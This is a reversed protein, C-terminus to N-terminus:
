RATIITFRGVRKRHDPTEIHYFYVGSAIRRGNRSRLNWTLEGGGTPDDNTLAQVLIGSLSYIRVIALAPLHVFKLVQTDPATEFGSFLYLPDPVTHVRALLSDTTASRNLQSGQFALEVRLGPVAPPRIAPAFAFDATAATGTITGSYFRANWVAGQVPLASLTMLFFHGNLYFIFGNGTAAYTPDATGAYSSASDRIAIAHLTATRQLVAPTQAGAGCLNAYVHVPEVCAIDSWTLLTNKTDGTLGETVGAFSEETLIGWSAGARTDFPVPVHHTVDIVSDVTGAAGWYVRFDAARTVTALAAEIIRGPTNPTSNYSQVHFIQVGAIAGATRGITPVRLTSACAGSSPRCNGGNPNPTNENASGAWWRPGNYASNSPLGNADGRGWTAVRFAGPTRLLAEGFLATNAGVGFRAAQASDVLTAGFRVLADQDRQVTTADMPLPVIFHVTMGTSRATLYYPTARLSGPLLDFDGMGTLVSDIMVTVSGTALLQPLFAGFSVAIGDTPPMPGSFIGTVPDITPLPAATDLVTGDAGLLQMSQVTGAIEQGSPARPTIVKTVRASELSSPGSRISNFDFATVAYYYRFSNRVTSDTYAYTVGGLVPGNAFAAAPFTDAIVTSVLGTSTLIRGGEPVQVIRFCCAFRTAWIPMSQKATTDPTPPFPAPCDTLVGLEPACQGGYSVAGLYDVFQTNDHDLQVLLTLARPDTGRYIRYGEVDFQRYNPDYLASSRDSALAYYPDGTQETASPQWVVTVAHDGPILFFDPTDPAAPMLFKADVIAQAVQTKFLLSRRAATVENAEIVGNANADSQTIWGAVREITQIRTTDLAISDGRQPFGPKLDGGIFPTVVDLPAALIFAVVITTAEGPDLHIPGTSITSKADAQSQLIFCYGRQKPDTAGAGPGNCVPDVTSSLNGSLYRWLQAVGIPTHFIGSGTFSTFLAFPAPSRLFRAGLLGPAAAFPPAGFIEPPYTWGLDDRFHGDYGIGLGFPLSATGYGHRIDAIDHDVFFGIYVSDFAYGGDPVQVGMTREVSDQFAAGVAAIETRREVPISPNAYVATTRATVNYLTFAFYVIDQNGTPYNWEMTRQDVLMGMPHAVGPVPSPREWTRHWLDQQSVVSRGILRPNFIETDLAVAFSPWSALDATDRSNFVNTLGVINTQSFGADAFLVGVTDGAWAFGAGSPIIGAVQLGSSFVYQQRYLPVPWSLADGESSYSCAGQDNTVHCFVRNVDIWSASYAFLNTASRNPPHKTQAELQGV